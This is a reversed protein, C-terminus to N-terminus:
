VILDRLATELDAFKFTYGAHLAAKPVARQGTLVMTAMEGLLARMAFAPAPVFSPRRMVRGLVGAFERNQVPTPASVNMPGHFGDTQLAFRILAICDDMHIWPMWQRGSGLPGGAFLHFPLMMQKLAGGHGLVLGTRLLIVRVGFSRAVAATAEWRRCVEALFDNGPGDSETVQEDGRPGYYGVASANILVRPRSDVNMLEGLARVVAGTASLRSNVILEKANTSWRRAITAGALNIVADTDSPLPVDGHDPAWRVVAAERPLSSRADDPARRTLVTVRHGSGILSRVLPRGIFGTAGAVVIHM